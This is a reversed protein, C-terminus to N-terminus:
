FGAKNLNLFDIDPMPTDLLLYEILDDMPIETTVSLSMKKSLYSGQLTYSGEAVKLVELDIWYGNMYGKFHYGKERPLIYLDALDNKFFGTARGPRNVTPVDFRLSPRHNKYVGSFRLTGNNTHEISVEVKKGDLQGFLRTLGETYRIELNTKEDASTVQSEINSWKDVELNKYQSGSQMHWSQHRDQQTIQWQIADAGWSGEVNMQAAGAGFSFLTVALLGLINVM